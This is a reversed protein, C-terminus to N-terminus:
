TLDNRGNQHPGQHGRTLECLILCCDCQPDGCDLQRIIAACETHEHSTDVLLWMRELDDM